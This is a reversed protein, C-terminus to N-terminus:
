KWSTLIAEAYACKDGLTCGNVSGTDPPLSRGDWVVFSRVTAKQDSSNYNIYIYRRFRQSASTAVYRSGDYRLSYMDTSGQSTFCNLATDAYNMYCHSKSSDFGTFGGNGIAFDNDRVNRVLEIGEQALESAVTANRVIISSSIGVQFMKVVTLLGISLVFAALLTEGFSFGKQYKTNALKMNM